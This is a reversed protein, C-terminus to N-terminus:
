REAHKVENREGARLSSEERRRPMEQNAGALMDEPGQDEAGHPEQLKEGKRVDRNGRKRAEGDAMDGAAATAV